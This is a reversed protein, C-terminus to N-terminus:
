GGGEGSSMAQVYENWCGSYDLVAYGTIRLDRICAKGGRKGPDITIIQLAHNSGM